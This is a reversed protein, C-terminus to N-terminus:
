SKKIQAYAANLRKAKEQARAQAFVNSTAQWRDPHAERMLRRYAAAMKEPAADASIGLLAHPDEPMAVTNECALMDFRNESLGLALATDRLAHRHIEAVHGHGDRALQLLCIVVSDSKQPLRVLLSKIQALQSSIVPTEAGHRRLIKALGREAQPSLFFHGRLIQRTNEFRWLGPLFLGEAMAVTALALLMEQPLPHRIKRTDRLKLLFRSWSDAAWGLLVGCVAGWFGSTLAGLLGLTIKGSHPLAQSKLWCLKSSATQALM